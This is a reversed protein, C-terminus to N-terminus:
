VASSNLLLLRRIRCRCHRWVPLVIRDNPSPRRWRMTPAAHSRSPRRPTMFVEVEIGTKDMEALRAGHIDLLKAPISSWYNGPYRNESGSTEEIKFHEEVAIKGQMAM